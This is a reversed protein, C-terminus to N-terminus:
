KKVKEAVEWPAVYKRMKQWERAFHIMIDFYVFCAEREDPKLGFTSKPRWLDKFFEIDEPKPKRGNPGSYLENNDLFFNVDRDKIQAECNCVHNVYHEALREKNNDWAKMLGTIVFIKASPLLQGKYKNPFTTEDTKYLKYLVSAFEFITAHLIESAEAPTKVETWEVEDSSSDEEM